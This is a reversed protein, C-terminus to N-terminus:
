LKSYRKLCTENLLLNESFVNDIIKNSHSVNLCENNIKEFTHIFINIISFIVILYVIVYIYFLHVYTYVIVYM